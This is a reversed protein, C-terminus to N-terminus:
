DLGRKTVSLIWCQADYGVGGVLSVQISEQRRKESGQIRLELQQGVRLKRAREREVQGQRM